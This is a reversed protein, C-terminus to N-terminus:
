AVNAELHGCLICGLKRHNATITAGLMNARILTHSIHTQPGLINGLKWHSAVSHERWCGKSMRNRVVYVAQWIYKSYVSFNRLYMYPLGVWLYQALLFNMRTKGYHLLFKQDIWYIVLSSKNWLYIDKSLSRVTSYMM